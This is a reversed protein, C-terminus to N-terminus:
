NPPLLSGLMVFLPSTLLEYTRFRPFSSLLNLSLGYSTARSLVWRQGTLVPSAPSSFGRITQLRHNQVATRPAWMRLSPTLTSASSLTLSVWPAQIVIMLDSLLVEWCLPWDLCDALECGKNLTKAKSKAKTTSCRMLCSILGSSVSILAAWDAWRLCVVSCGLYGLQAKFHPLVKGSM